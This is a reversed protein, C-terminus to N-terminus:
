SDGEAKGSNTTQQQQQQQQQGEVSQRGQSSSPQQQQEQQGGRWLEVVMATMNDCGVGRAEQMHAYCHPPTFLHASPNGSGM